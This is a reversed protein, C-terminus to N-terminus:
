PLPGASVSPARPPLYTSAILFANFLSSLPLLAAPAFLPPLSHSVLTLTCSTPTQPILLLSSFLPVPSPPVPSSPALASLQLWMLHLSNAKRMHTLQLLKLPPSRGREIRPAPRLHADLVRWVGGDRVEAESQAGCAVQLVSDVCEDWCGRTFPDSLFDFL